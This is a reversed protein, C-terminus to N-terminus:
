TAPLDRLFLSSVCMLASPFPVVFFLHDPDDYRLSFYIFYFLIFYFKLSADEFTDACSAVGGWCVRVHASGNVAKLTPPAESCTSGCM